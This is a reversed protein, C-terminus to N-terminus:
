FSPISPRSESVLAVPIKARELFQLTEEVGPQLAFRAMGEDEFREIIRMAEARREATLHGHELIDSGATVGVPVLAARLGAFDIQARRGAVENALQPCRASCRRVAPVTLTGDMDFIVGRLLSVSELPRSDGQLRFFRRATRLAM